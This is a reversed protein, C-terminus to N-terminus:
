FPGGPTGERPAKEMQLVKAPGRNEFTEVAGRLGDVDLGLARLYQETTRPSEHRLIRQIVAVPYGARYLIVASLHRIAHFGFAPVSARACLKRMVHQRSTFPQGEYQNGFGGGDVTFVNETGSRRREWQQLLATRLEETMPLVSVKWSGDRTKMTRLTVTRGALDVDPWALRFLEGRRAALHLFATLMVRDQGQAVAHVKWYDGEQPIYRPKRDEPFKPVALFPNGTPGHKLFRGGWTWASSLNKRDKNAAHGSRTRAQELLFRRAKDQGLAQADADPGMFSILRRFAARKEDYTKASRWRAKGETLYETALDLVTLCATPTTTPARAAAEMEAKVQGEWAAAARKSDRSDDPFWKKRTKGAVM